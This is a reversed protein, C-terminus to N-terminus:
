GVIHSEFDDEDWEGYHDIHFKKMNAKSGKVEVEPWGGGPGKMQLIKTKVGFQKEVKKLEQKIDKQDVAFDYISVIQDKGEALYEAFSIM